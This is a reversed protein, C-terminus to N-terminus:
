AGINRYLIIISIPLKQEVKEKSDMLIALPDRKWIRYERESDDMKFYSLVDNHNTNLDKVIM